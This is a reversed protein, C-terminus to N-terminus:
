WSGSAARSTGTHPADCSPLRNDTRELGSGHDTWLDVVAVVHGETRGPVHCVERVTRRGLRDVGVQVVVDVCGAVTPVVFAPAINEAALLPLTCLKTLAERASNAHVTAMAPLGSNMAILLDLAEAHRVEGVVLRSPRMRLAERVLRRLAIEGTGELSDGRTQLAVWDPHTLDLEFVEECSVIREGPPVAGLLANVFTTKGAQTGGSVLVNMGGAVAEDLFAAADAPLMRRVVLEELRRARVVFRRVNVAWHRRTVDPIAVHLRSGDPLTADVFPNSLDLRRGSQRLMREVLDRVQSEQLVVTTLESRGQRAAFVRGPENIWVEEVEPDDFLRQLPGFGSVSRHVERALGEADGPALEGSVVLDSVAEAVLRQVDDPATLPDIGRTRVEGRVRSEVLAGANM